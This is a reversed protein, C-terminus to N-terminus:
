TIIHPSSLITETQSIKGVTGVVGVPVSANKAVYNNVGKRWFGTRKQSSSGIVIFHVKNESAVRLLAKGPSTDVLIITKSKIGSDKITQALRRSLNNAGESYMRQRSTSEKANDETGNEENEIGLYLKPKVVHVLLVEDNDKMEFQRYWAIVQDASETDRIAIM